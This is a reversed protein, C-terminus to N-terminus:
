VINLKKKAEEETLEEKEILEKILYNIDNGVLQIQNSGYKTRVAQVYIKIKNNDILKDNDIKENPVIIILPSEKLTNNGDYNPMIDKIKIYGIIGMKNRNEIQCEIIDGNTPKIIKVSCEVDYKIKCENNINQFQGLSKNLFQISDKIIYGYNSCKDGLKSHIEKIITKELNNYNLNHPELYIVEKIIQESIYSM